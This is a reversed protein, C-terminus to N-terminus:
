LGSGRKKISTRVSQDVILLLFALAASAFIVGLLVMVPSTGPRVIRPGNRLTVQSTVTADLYSSLLKNYSDLIRVLDTTM